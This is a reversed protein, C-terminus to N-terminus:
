QNYIDWWTPIFHGRCKKNRNRVVRAIDVGPYKAKIAEMDPNPFTRLILAVQNEQRNRLKRRENHFKEHYLRLFKRVAYGSHAHVHEKKWKTNMFKPIVHQRLRYVFPLGIANKTVYAPREGSTGTELLHYAKNRERVVTEINEMSIEVKDIREENPFPLYKKKYLEEMTILMNKEKVLIYWLKHLDENSKIRLEDLKWSRGVQVKRKGWNAEDDFFQMLNQTDNRKSTTHVFSNFSMMNCAPITISVMENKISLNTLLKVVNNITKSAYIVKTLAAM